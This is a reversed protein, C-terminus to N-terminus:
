GGVNAFPRYSYYKPRSDLRVHLWPVGTGDTSLWVPPGDGMKGYEFAVLRWLEDVQAPPARRVFAALHSYSVYDSGQQPAVLVADGGLNLFSCAAGQCSILHQAFAQPSANSEAFSKLPPADVLVFEFANQRSSLRTMGKTEFFYAPYSSTQLATTLGQRCNPNKGLMSQTWQEITLPASEDGNGCFAGYKTFPSGGYVGEELISYRVNECVGDAGYNNNLNVAMKDFESSAGRNNLSLWLFFFAPILVLFRIPSTSLDMHRHQQQQQQQERLRSLRHNTSVITTM